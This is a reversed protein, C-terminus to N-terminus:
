ISVWASLDLLGKDADKGENVVFNYDAWWTIGGTQYTVRARQTGGKPALVDWVLTPKTDLGGPLEPFTLSSYDRLAHISGDKGSLVLWDASSLLTGSLTTTQGFANREVTVPRDIYKLLLKDTSVLDFQYNQEVIRTQPDTLSAFTVTTPDILAAVD